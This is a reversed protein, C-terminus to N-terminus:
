GVEPNFPDLERAKILAKEREQPSSETLVSLVRWGFFNRPYERVLQNALVATEVQRNNRMAFELALEKHFQTAGLTSVAASIQAMDGTLNASRYRIDASFPPAAIFLGIALGTITAISDRASLQAGRYTNRPRQNTNTTKQNDLTRLSIEGYGILAGSLIWGWVGVGIQNISVLAQIQYAFWVSTIAAFYPDFNSQAKLFRLACVGATIVIAVFSLGLVLGGNSSIDLFINHATNSIRGPGTRQTSIEGRYERYWDGYSDLGVGFLPKKLSMEWGAHIYDTRFILSPQYLIPALPGKNLLGSVGTVVSSILTILYFSLYIPRFKGKFYRLKIAGLSFIGAIFIVVGQISGTSFAISIDLLGLATLLIRVFVRFHLYSALTLCAVSTMGFFASLFNINGLTGFTALESWGIPDKGAIQVLCYATMPLATGILAKTLGAYYDRSSLIATSILMILLSLYSLFGTNRGFSGWIQQQLPAGSFLLSLLLWTAFIAFIIWIFKPLRALVERRRSLLLFGLATAFSALLVMKPLSIPDYSTWPNVALTILPCSYFLIQYIRHRAIDGFQIQNKVRLTYM